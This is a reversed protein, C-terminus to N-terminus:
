ARPGAGGARLDGLGLGDLFLSGAGQTHDLLHVPHDRLTCGHGPHGGLQRVEELALAHFRREAQQAVTHVQGAGLIGGLKDKGRALSGPPVYAIFGVRPNRLRENQEEDSPVEILRGAIPETLEKATPVFLNNM